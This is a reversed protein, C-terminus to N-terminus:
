TETCDHAYKACHNNFVDCAFHAAWQKADAKLEEDSAATGDAKLVVTIKGEDDVGFLESLRRPPCPASAEAATAISDGYSLQSVDGLIGFNSPTRVLGAGFDPDWGIPGRDEAQALLLSEM